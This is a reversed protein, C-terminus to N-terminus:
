SVRLPCRLTLILRLVILPRIALLIPIFYFAADSFINLLQYTDSKTSVWGYFMLFILIGKLLGAGIIAPIIPVFIGSLTDLFRDVLSGKVEEEQTGQSSLSFLDNFNSYVATVKGGLIVQFQNGVTNVGLVGSLAAINNKQIKEEDKFSLRLRTVCHTVSLLNDEGGVLDLIKQALVNDTM